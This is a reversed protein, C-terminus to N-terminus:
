EGALFQQHVKQLHTPTSIHLGPSSFDVKKSHPAAPQNLLMLYSQNEKLKANQQQKIIDMIEKLAM